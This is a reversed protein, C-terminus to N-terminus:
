LRTSSPACHSAVASFVGCCCGASPGRYCCGQFVCDTGACRHPIRTSGTRDTPEVQSSKRREPVTGGASLTVLISNFPINQVKPAPHAWYGGFCM